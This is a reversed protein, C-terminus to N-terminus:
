LRCYWGESPMERRLIEACIAGGEEGLEQWPILLQKGTLRTAIEGVSWRTIGDDLVNEVGRVYKAQFCGGGRAEWVGLMRMLGPIRTDERGGGRCDVGM